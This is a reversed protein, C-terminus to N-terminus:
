IVKGYFDVQGAREVLCASTAINSPSFYRELYEVVKSTSEGSISDENHVLVSRGEILAKHYATESQPICPKSDSCKHRSFRIPLFHSGLLYDLMMASRYAGHGIAVVTDFSGDAELIQGYIEGVYEPDDAHWSTRDFPDLIVAAKFMDPLSMDQLTHYGQKFDGKMTHDLLTDLRSKTEDSCDFGPDISLDVIVRILRPLLSFCDEHYGESLAQDLRDYLDSFGMHFDKGKRCSQDIDPYHLSSIVDFISEIQRIAM